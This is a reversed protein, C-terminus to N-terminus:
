IDVFGAASLWERHEADTYSQGADFTNLLILNFAGHSSSEM